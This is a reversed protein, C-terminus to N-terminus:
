PAPTSDPRGGPTGDPQGGPTSDPQGGPTEDPQGGGSPPSPRDERMSQADERAQTVIREVFGRISAPMRDSFRSLIDAISGHEAIVADYARQLGPKSQAPMDEDAILEALKTSARDQGDVNAQVTKAVTRKGAPSVDDGVLAKAEAKVEGDRDQALAGLAKALGTAAQEPVGRELLATIVAIAKDRGRTDSLAAKAVTNEVKGRVEDLAGVLQDINEDRQDAVLAAARAATARENPADAQRRLKAAEASAQGLERRSRALERSGRRDANREFLRVARDLGADARDTHAKVSKVGVQVDASAVGAPAVAAVMTLAGTAILKSRM